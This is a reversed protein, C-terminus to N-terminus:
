SVFFAMSLRCLQKEDTLPNRVRHLTAKFAAGSRQQLERGIQVLLQGVPADAPLWSGDPQQVELGPATPAPLLTLANLDTHAPQRMNGASALDAMLSSAAFGDFAPYHMVRLCGGNCNTILGKGCAADLAAALQRAVASLSGVLALTAERVMAPLRSGKYYYYSEQMVYGSGHVLPVYGTPFAMGQQYHPKLPSAFFDEWAQYAAPLVAALEAPAPLLLSGATKLQQITHGSIM